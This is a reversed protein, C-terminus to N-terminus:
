AGDGPGARSRAAAIRAALLDLLDGLERLGVFAEDAPIYVDYTDEIAALLVAVDISAFGLTEFTADDTLREPELRAERAVLARLENRLDADIAADGNRTTGM